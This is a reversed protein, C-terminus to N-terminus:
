EKSWFFVGEPSQFYPPHTSFELGVGGLMFGGRQLSMRFGLGLCSAPTLLRSAIRELSSREEVESIFGSLALYDGCGFMPLDKVCRRAGEEGSGIAVKTIARDDYLFSLYAVERVELPSWGKM